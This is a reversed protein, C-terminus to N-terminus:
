LETGVAPHIVPRRPAGIRDPAPLHDPPIHLSIETRSGIGLKRLISVMHTDITRPSNGRHRAIASNSWGAAALVAIDREASTLETWRSGTATDIPRPRPELRRTGLVLQQVECLEPRLKRGADEANLYDTAGLVARAAAIASATEALMPGKGVVSYGLSRSYTEAGGALHAIHEAVTRRRPDDDEIETLLVRLAWMRIHLGWIMDWQHGLRLRHAMVIRGTSLAETVRGMRPLAIVLELEACAANSVAGRAACIRINDMALRAARHPSGLLSEAVSEVCRAMFAGFDDGARELKRRARSLVPICGSDGHVNLLVTGCAFEVTGPLGFDTEPCEKWPPAEAGLTAARVCEEVLRDARDGTNQVAMLWTLQAMAALDLETHPRGSARRQALAQEIWYQIQRTRGFIYPVQMMTLSLAMALTDDTDDQALSHDVATAIDPWVTRVWDLLRSEDPGFYAHQADILRDRYYKRHRYALHATEGSATAFRSRAYVRISELLFYHTSEASSDTSVLSRDTLQELLPPISEATLDSSDACVAVVAHIDVGRHPGSPHESGNSDHGSAFISLRRLLLQEDATALDFSWDIANGMDTHRPDIGTRAGSTWALRGDTHDGTLERLVHATPRHRLRAAALRIHLPNHDVRRCLTAAAEADDIERGVRVAHYRLLALSEASTLPPVHVLAEDPLGLREQSTALVTSGPVADALAAVLGTVAPLVHECNDLVLVPHIGDAVLAALADSITRFLPRDASDAGGITAAIEREVPGGTDGEAVLRALAVWFVRTTSDARLRNATELALRTKGIGSGGVLTILEIRETLLISIRALEPIRGVFFGAAAAGIGHQGPKSVM